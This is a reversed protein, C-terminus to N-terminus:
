CQYTFSVAKDGFRINYDKEVLYGAPSGRDGCIQIEYVDEIKFKDDFKDKNREIFKIATMRVFKDDIYILGRKKM